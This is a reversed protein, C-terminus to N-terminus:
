RALLYCWCMNNSVYHLSFMESKGAITMTKLHNTVPEPKIDIFEPCILGKKM